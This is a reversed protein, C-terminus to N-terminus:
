KKNFWDGGVAGGEEKDKAFAEKLEEETPERGQEKAAKMAQCVPCDDFLDEDDFSDVLEGEIKQEKEENIKKSEEM